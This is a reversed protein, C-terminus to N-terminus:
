ATYASVARLGRTYLAPFQQIVYEIGGLTSAIVVGIRQSNEDGLVLEADQVAQQVAALAYHTSCDTRNALRRDIYDNVAFNNVQGAVSIPIDTTSFCSIPQIGTIGGSTADWFAAKSIGNAAVVGLGTIVVRRAAQDTM